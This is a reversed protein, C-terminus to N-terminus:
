KFFRIYLVISHSLITSIPLILCVLSQLISGMLFSGQNDIRPSGPLSDIMVAYKPNLPNYLLKEKEDDELLQPLHTKAITEYLRGDEAQFEFILKYVTQDNIKTNTAVKNKIKGAALKGNGLLYNAKMGQLIGIIIFILGVFPFIIIFAAWIPMPKNRLGKIRSVSPKNKIYEIKVKHGKNFHAGVAYSKGQYEDHGVRYVYYCVYIPTGDSHDSGGESFNTKQQQTISGQTIEINPSRFQYWSTFDINAPFVWMFILSFGLWMWGFQNYFGGFLVRVRLTWPVNRPPPNLFKDQKSM